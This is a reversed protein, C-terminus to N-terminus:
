PHRRRWWWNSIAAASGYTGERIEDIEDDTLLRNIVVLESIYGILNHTAGGLGDDATANGVSFPRAYNLRDDEDTATYVAEGTKDWVRHWWTDDDQSYAVHYWQDVTLDLTTGGINIGGSATGGAVWSNGAGPTNKQKAVSHVEDSEITTPSVWFCVTMDNVDGGVKTPFNASLDSDTRWVGCNAGAFRVAAPSTDANPGNYGKVGADFFHNLEKDDWGLGTKDFAWVAVCNADSGFDYSQGRINNIDTLTLEDNFVALEDLLGDYEAAAVGPGTSLSFLGDEVNMNNTTTGAQDYVTTNSSDYLRMVYGKDSNDFTMGLHYWVTASLNRGTHNITEESAGSNYGIFIQVQANGGNNQVRAGWSAKGAGVIGCITRTDYDPAGATPLSELKFWLGISWVNNSTGSKGPFGASLNANSIAWTGDITSEMDICGDGEQMGTTELWPRFQWYLHNGNGSQDDFPDSGDFTYGGVWNPDGSFDNVALAPGCLILIILLRKMDGGVLVDYVAGDARYLGAGGCHLTDDECVCRLSLPSSLPPLM